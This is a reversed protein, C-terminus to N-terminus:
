SGKQEFQPQNKPKNQPENQVMLKSSHTRLWHKVESILQQRQADDITMLDKQYIAKGFCGIALDSFAREPGQKNLYVLWNEGSIQAIEARPYIQLATTKVLLALARILETNHTYQATLEALNKLADRRYRNMKWVQYKKFAQWSMFIILVVLIFHWAPALPWFYHSVPEAISEPLESFGELFVNGFPSAHTIKDTM